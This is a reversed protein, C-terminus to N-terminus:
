LNSIKSMTRSIVGSLHKREEQTLYPDSMARECREIQREYDKITMRTQHSNSKQNSSSFGMARDLAQYFNDM